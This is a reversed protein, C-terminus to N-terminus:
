PKQPWSFTSQGPEFMHRSQFERAKRKDPNYEWPQNAAVDGVDNTGGHVISGALYSLRHYGSYDIPENEAGISPDDQQIKKTQYRPM